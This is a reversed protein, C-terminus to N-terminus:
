FLGTRKIVVLTRDDNFQSSASFKQVEELIQLAIEKATFDRYKAILEKPDHRFNMRKM